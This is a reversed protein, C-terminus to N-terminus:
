GALRYFRWMPHDLAIEVVSDFGAQEAYHQITSPRIVTGTGVADPSTMGVPLCHLVSCAYMFREMEDGPATFADAVREDVVLVTGGPKCLRRMTALLEVPRTADHLAEFIAVFDYAGALSDDSADAVEFRVRDEVGADAANRRAAAISADDLDYGDVTSEPYATALTVAAIGEGCAIEAVKGGNRLATEVEPLAPIWSQVLENRFMPRTIAAQADHVGYDAFPVGGGTRYADLLQDAVRGISPLFAAAGALAFPSDPDIFVPQHARPLRYRRTTEDGDLAVEVIGAVAQQELWERAYREHIGAAKALDAPSADGADALTGYLGLADGLWISGLEFAAIAAGFIKEALAGAVETESETLEITM